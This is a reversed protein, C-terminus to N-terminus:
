LGIEGIGSANSTAAAAPQPPRTNLYACEGDFLELFVTQDFPSVFEGEAEYMDLSGGPGASGVVLLWHEYGTLRYGNLDGAKADIAKQILPARQMSGPAGWGIWIKDLPRVSVATVYNTGRGRLDRIGRRRRPDRYVVGGGCDLDARLPEYIHLSDPDDELDEDDLDEYRHREANGNTRAALDERVLKAIAEAEAILGARDKNLVSALGDPL